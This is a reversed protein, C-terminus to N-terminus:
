VHGRLKNKLVGISIFILAGCVLWLSNPEPTASSSIGDNLATLTFIGNSFADSYQFGPQLGDIQFTASSFDAGLLATILNFSDGMHPAFGDIFNFDVTGQFLGFGSINLQSFLDPTIGLTSSWFDV